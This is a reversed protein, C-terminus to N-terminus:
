IKRCKEVQNEQGTAKMTRRLAIRDLDIVMNKSKGDIDSKLVTLNVTAHSSNITTKCQIKTDLMLAMTQCYEIRKEQSVIYMAGRTDSVFFQDTPGCAYHIDGKAYASVNFTTAAALVILAMQSIKM